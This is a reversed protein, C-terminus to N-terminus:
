ERPPAARGETSVFYSLEAAPLAAHLRVRSKFKTVDVARGGRTAVVTKIKGREVVASATHGGREHIKISEKAKCAAGRIKTHVSANVKFHAPAKKGKKPKKDAADVSGLLCVGLALSLTLVRIM